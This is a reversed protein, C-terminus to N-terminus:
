CYFNVLKAGVDTVFFVGWHRKLIGRQELRRFAFPLLATEVFALTPMVLADFLDGDFRDGPRPQQCVLSALILISTREILLELDEREPEKSEEFM